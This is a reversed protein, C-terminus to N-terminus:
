EINLHETKLVPMLGASYFNYICELVEISLANAGLMGKMFQLGEEIDRPDSYRDVVLANADKWIHKKQEDILM